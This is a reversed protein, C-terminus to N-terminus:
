QYASDAIYTAEYRNGKVTGGLNGARGLGKLLGPFFWLKVSATGEASAYTYAGSFDLGSAREMIAITRAIQKTSGGHMLLFLRLYDSYTTDVEAYKSLQITGKEILSQIDLLAKSIGYVLAAALILLPHGMARCEVLGEMTRIALRFAFIEGYAAAINGSVNNLGYLIYETEQRDIALPAEGGHLMEKVLPPDYHALRSLTYESYYLQDRVGTLAGTLSDLFGSSSTMASDMGANPDNNKDALDSEAEEAAENWKLNADSLANVQEFGEREEESGSRGSLGALFQTAGAWAVKAKKEEEKRQQDHSRHSQLVAQRDNVIKGEAGYSIIYESNASQLRTAGSRLAQGNGTTGIASSVISSFAEAENALALGKNRQLSLEDSYSEFFSSDLVLDTVTKRVQTLSQIQEEGEAAASSTSVSTEARSAIERMRDNAEKAAHIAANASVWAEDAKRSIDSAGNGLAIALSNVGSEYAGVIAGNRPPAPPLEEVRDEDEAQDEKSNKAEEARRREEERNRLEYQQLAERSAEDERRKNVYDEYRTAADAITSVSGAPQNIEMDVGPFSVRDALLLRIADGSRKQSDLVEDLAAERRDYAQRMQELVDVTDKAVQVAGSVGKFRSALELTLNIPAKYKMEELVQRRFIDHNALPRSETVEANDWHTDIYDFAEGEQIQSNGEFTERLLRNADDGGRIFLGYRAYIAPDYSSLVSRVGSKVTLEAQRRFAAVRAYDILLATLLVFAATVTIFYITVSGREGSISSRGM